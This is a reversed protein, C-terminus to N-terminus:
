LRDLRKIIESGSCLKRGVFGDISFHEKQKDESLSEMGVLFPTWRAWFWRCGIAKNWLLILHAGTGALAPRCLLTLNRQTRMRLVMSEFRTKDIRTRM